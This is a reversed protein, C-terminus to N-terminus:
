RCDAKPIFSFRNQSPKFFKRLRSSNHWFKWFKWVTFNNYRWVSKEIFNFAIKNPKDRHPMPCRKWLFWFRSALMASGPVALVMGGWLKGNVEIVM